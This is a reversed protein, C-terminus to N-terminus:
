MTCQQWKKMWVQCRDGDELGKIRKKSQQDAEYYDYIGLYLKGQYELVHESPDEALLSENELGTHWNFAVVEAGCALKSADSM